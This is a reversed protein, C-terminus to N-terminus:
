LQEKLEELLDDEVLGDNQSAASCSNVVIRYAETDLELVENLSMGTKQPVKLRILRRVENAYLSYPVTQTAPNMRALPVPVTYAPNDHDTIGMLNEYMEVLLM